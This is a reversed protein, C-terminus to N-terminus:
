ELEPPAPPQMRRHERFEKRLQMRKQQMLDHLTKWQQESMEKRIRLMHLVRNKKLKLQLSHMKEVNTMVTREDADYRQMLSRFDLRVKEMEARLDIQQKELETRMSQINRIQGDSLGAQKMLEARVAPPLGRKGPGRRHGFGAWAPLAALIFALAVAIGTTKKM